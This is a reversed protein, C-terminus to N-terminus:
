DIPDPASGVHRVEDDVSAAYIEIGLHSRIRKPIREAATVATDAVVVAFVAEGVAEAPMRRLLQGYLTDVDLGTAKTQGKAEAYVYLGNRVGVVDVFTKNVCFRGANTWLWICFADVVRKEDGM